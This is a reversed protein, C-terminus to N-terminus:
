YFAERGFFSSEVSYEGRSLTLASPTDFVNMRAHLAGQVSILSLLIALLLGGRIGRFVKLKKKFFCLLWEWWVKKAENTKPRKAIVFYTSHM